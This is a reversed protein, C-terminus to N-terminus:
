RTSLIDCGIGRRGSVDRVDFEETIEHMTSAGM